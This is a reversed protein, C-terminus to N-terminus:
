DPKEVTFDSNKEEWKKIRQSCTVLGLRGELSSILSWEWRPSYRHTNSPIGTYSFRM